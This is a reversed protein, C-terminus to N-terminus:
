NKITNNGCTKKIFYYYKIVSILIISLFLTNNLKESQDRTMEIGTISKIFPRFFEPGGEDKASLNSWIGTRYYYEWKTLLCSGFLDNWGMVILIVFSIFYPLYKNPVYFIGTLIFLVLIIHTYHIIDAILISTM